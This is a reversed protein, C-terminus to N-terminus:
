VAKRWRRGIEAQNLAVLFQALTFPKELVADAGEGLCLNLDEPDGGSMAVAPVSATRADSRIRRLFAGGARRGGDYLDVLVADVGGEELVAAGEAASACVVVALGAVGFMRTLARRCVEDDDIVLIRPHARRPEM